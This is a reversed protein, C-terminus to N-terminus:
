LKSPSSYDSMETFCALDILLKEWEVGDVFEDLHAHGAEADRHTIVNSANSAIAEAQQPLSVIIDPSGTDGQASVRRPFLSEKLQSLYFM